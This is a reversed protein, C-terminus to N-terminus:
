ERNQWRRLDGGGAKWASIIWRVKLRETYIVVYARGEVEGIARIREEGYDRRRDIAEITPGAFIRAAYDFGFGRDRRTKEHKAPDWEFEV